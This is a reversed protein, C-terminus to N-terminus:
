RYYSFFVGRFKGDKNRRGYTIFPSPHFHAVSQNSRRFGANPRQLKSCNRKGHCSGFTHSRGLKSQQILGVTCPEPKEVSVHLLHDVHALDESLLHNLLLYV